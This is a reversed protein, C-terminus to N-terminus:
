ISIASTRLTTSCVTLNIKRGETVEEPLIRLFDLLTDLGDKSNGVSSGISAVVNKWSTMQIALSAICICLQTRIPRAGTMYKQLLDLLSDRLPALASEPLQHLDYTIQRHNTQLEKPRGISYRERWRPRLLCDLKWHHQHIKYFLIPQTGRKQSDKNSKSYEHISFM